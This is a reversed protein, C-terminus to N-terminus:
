NAPEDPRSMWRIIVMAVPLWAFGAAVYFLLEVALGRGLVYQGGLAMLVLAYVILWVLTAITGLLKRTRMPM